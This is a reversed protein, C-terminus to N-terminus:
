NRQQSEMRPVVRPSPQGRDVGREKQWRKASLKKGARRLARFVAPSWYIIMVASFVSILVLLSMVLDDIFKNDM